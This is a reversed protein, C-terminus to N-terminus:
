TCDSPRTSSWGSAPRNEAMHDALRRLTWLSFPLGLSRPRRRRVAQVLLERYEATM